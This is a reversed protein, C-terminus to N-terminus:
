IQTYKALFDPLAASDKSITLVVSVDKDSIVRELCGFFNALEEVPHGSIKVIGDVFIDTIDYNTALMGKIFAVLENDSSVRWESMDNLRVKYSLGLKHSDDKDLFVVTGKSTKATDNAMDLIKKTKGAGKEGCILKIM